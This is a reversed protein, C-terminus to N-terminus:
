CHLLKMMFDKLSIGPAIMTGKISIDFVAEAQGVVNKAVIKYVGTDDLTVNKVTITTFDDTIDISIRPSKEVPEEDLLWMVEPTPIGSINVEITLTSGAKRIQKSELKNDYDLKPHASFKTIFYYYSWIVCTM